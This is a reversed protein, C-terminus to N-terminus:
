LLHWVFQFHVRYDRPEEPRKSIPIGLVIRGSADKAYSFNVGGGASSLVDTSRQNGPPRFPRVEGRDLFAFGSARWAWDEPLPMRRQLELNLVFGRDGSFLGTAFGRVSSEGGIVIQESAPLLPIHSYQWNTAAVLTTDADLSLSRRLNGRILHYPKREAGLPENRGSALELNGTWYGTAEPLQLELGLTSGNLDAASLLNNDIWNVTRRKKVGLVADVQIDRGVVLPHRLSATIATAEGTVKLSAILGHVIRTRDNFYGLTLRTGLTNVPLGYTLYNGRHGDAMATSLFLDDRRGTLSRRQYAAGSRLEGTGASGSNELFVRFDDRKPEVLTVVLDTEGFAEGAQLDARMQADNTRNFRVMDDELRRLDILDSPKLRLRDTIYGADTSANGEIRLKGVRGEVLRIRVVGATVDQAPLSAQATVIGRSKYMENVKAVLERLDSLRLTRGRYPATLADLEDPKLLEPAPEYRIERVFFQLEETSPAAPAAAPAAPKLPREIRERRLEEDRLRREREMERQQLVGPDSSPPVQVQAAAGCAFLFLPVFTLGRM